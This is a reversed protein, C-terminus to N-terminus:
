KLTEFSLFILRLGFPIFGESSIEKSCVCDLLSPTSTLFRVLRGRPHGTRALPTPAGGGEHAGRPEVSMSRGGIYIWTGRFCGLAGRFVIEVACGETDVLDWRPAKAPAGDSPSDVM